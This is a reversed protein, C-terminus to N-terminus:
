SDAEEGSRRSEAPRTDDADELKGNLDAKHRRSRTTQGWSRGEEREQKRRMADGAEAEGVGGGRAVDRKIHAEEEKNLTVNEKRGLSRSRGGGADERTEM